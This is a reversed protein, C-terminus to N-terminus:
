FRDRLIGAFGLGSVSPCLVQRAAFSQGFKNQSEHQMSAREFHISCSENGCNFVIKKGSKRPKSLQRSHPASVRRAGLTRGRRSISSQAEVWGGVHLQREPINVDLSKPLTTACVTVNGRRM